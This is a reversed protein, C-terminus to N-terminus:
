FTAIMASIGGTHPTAGCAGAMIGVTPGDQNIGDLANSATGANCGAGVICAEGMRISVRILTGKTQGVPHLLSQFWGANGNARCFAQIETIQLIWVAIDGRDHFDPFPFGQDRFCTSFRM